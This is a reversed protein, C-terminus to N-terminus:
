AGYVATVRGYLFYRFVDAANIPYVFLLPLGFLLGLAFVVPFRVSFKGARAQASSLWCLFFSLSVVAAYSLGGALTPAFTRVDALREEYRPVLPFFFPASVCCLFIGLPSLWVPLDVLRRM